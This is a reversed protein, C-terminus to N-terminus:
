RFLLHAIRSEADYYIMAAATLDFAAHAIMLPVLRGTAAFVAAFLLGVIMAQAIGPWGQAYHLSGFVATTSVVIVTKAVASSGLIRGLREFLYGRFFTEEGWGAGVVAYAAFEAVATPNGAMYHYAHNVPDAGLLPMVVAKMLVKLAAGVPIAAALTAGWNKPRLYGIDRWATRSLWAWLVVLLAGLPMVILAGATVVLFAIWGLPGGGRLARALRERRTPADVAGVSAASV